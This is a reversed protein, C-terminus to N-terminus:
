SNSLAIMAEIGGREPPVDHEFRGGNEVFLDYVKGLPELYKSWERGKVYEWGETSLTRGFRGRVMLTVGPGLTHPSENELRQLHLHIFKFIQNMLKRFRKFPSCLPIRASEERRNVYAGAGGEFLLGVLVLLREGFSQVGQFWPEASGYKVYQPIWTCCCVRCHFEARKQRLADPATADDEEMDLLDWNFKEPEKLPIRNNTYFRANNPDLIEDLRHIWDFPCALTSKVQQDVAAYLPTIGTIEVDREESFAAVAEFCASPSIKRQLEPSSYGGPDAGLRLLCRVAKVNLAGAALTLATKMRVVDHHAPFTPREHGLAVADIPTGGEVLAEILRTSTCLQDVMTHLATRSTMDRFPTYNGSELLVRVASASCVYAFPYSFSDNYRALRGTSAGLAALVRLTELNEEGAGDMLAERYLPEYMYTVRHRFGEVRDALLQLCKASSHSVCSGLLASLFDNTFDIDSIKKRTEFPQWLEEDHTNPFWGDSLDYTPGYPDDDGYAAPYLVRMNGFEEGCHDIITALLSPKKQAIAHGIASADFQRFGKAWGEDGAKRWDENVKADPYLEEWNPILMPDRYIGVGNLSRLNERLLAPYFINFLAKNSLALNLRTKNPLYSMIQFMIDLNLKMETSETASNTNTAM